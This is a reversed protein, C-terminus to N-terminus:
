GWPATTRDFVKKAPRNIPRRLCPFTAPEAGPRFRYGLQFSRPPQAYLVGQPYGGAFNRTNVLNHANLALTTGGYAYSM